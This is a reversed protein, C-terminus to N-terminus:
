CDEEDCIISGVIRRRLDETSVENGLAGAAPTAAVEVKDVFDATNKLAFIGGAESVNRKLTADLLIDAFSVKVAELFAASATDRHERMFLNVWQRSVGMAASLGIITPYAGTQECVTLYEFVVEKVAKEDFLDIKGRTAAAKLFPTKSTIIESLAERKLIDSTEKYHSSKM